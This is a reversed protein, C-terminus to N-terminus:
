KRIRIKNIMNLFIIREHKTLCYRFALILLVFCVILTLVVLGILTDPIVYDMAVGVIVSMATVALVPFIVKLLLPKSNMVAERQAIRIRSCIAIIEVVVVVVLVSYAPFGMELLLASIPLILLYLIGSTIQLTKIKGVSEMAVYLGSTLQNLLTRLLIFVTFAVTFAPVEKLWLNLIFDLRLSIPIVLIALIFFSLKISSYTLELMKNQYGQSVNKAIQPRFALLISSTAYQLQGNIQNAIGYAANILVGFYVNLLMAVGQGYSLSCLANFMIWVSFTGIEKFYKHNTIRHIKFKTESYRSCYWRLVVIDLVSILAMIVSYLVLRNGSYLLLYYALVFKIVSISIGLLASALQNEHANLIAQYPSSIISFFSSVSMCQLVIYTVAEKDAPINLVWHILSYGGIEFLLFIMLGLGFHLVVSNYFTENVLDNNQKGLAVSLYRQTSCSLSVNLFSLMVIIGAVLNYIGFDEAGLALLIWRTSILGLLINIAIKIYLIGTNFIIRTSNNM